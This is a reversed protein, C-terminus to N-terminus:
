EQLPLRDLTQKVFDVGVLEFWANLLSSTAPGPLEGSFRFGNLTDVPMMSYVTGSIFAEDALYVHYLSYDGEDVGIGLSEALELVTEMSVGPLVNRRNPLKIRGERVFMFNGGKCETISGDRATMLPYVKQPASSASSRPDPKPLGYTAPTVVRVGRVYGWGFSIDLPKCYIIVNVRPKEEPSSTPTLSVVQTLEIEDGSDWLPRTAELIRTSIAEMEDLTIGADIKSFDLGRYLRELHSRLKFVQGNFTREHDYFGGASQADTGQLAAVAERHTMFRGNLYTLWESPNVM